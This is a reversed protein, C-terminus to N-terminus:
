NTQLQLADLIEFACAPRSSFSHLIDWFFCGKVSMTQTQVNSSTGIWDVGSWNPISASGVLISTRVSQARFGDSSALLFYLSLALGLWTAAYQHVDFSKNGCLWCQKWTRIRIHRISVFVLDSWCWESRGVPVFVCKAGAFRSRLWRQHSPRDWPRDHLHAMWESCFQTDIWTPQSSASGNTFLDNIQCLFGLLLWWNARRQSSISSEM